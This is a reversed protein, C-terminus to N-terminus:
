RNTKQNKISMIVENASVFDSGQSERYADKTGPIREITRPIKIKGQVFLKGKDTIKVSPHQGEKKKQLLDWPPRCLKTYNCYAKEQFKNKIENLSVWKSEKM